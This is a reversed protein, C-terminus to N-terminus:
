LKVSRDCSCSCIYKGCPSFCVSLVWEIHGKLTTILQYDEINWLKITEDDSGSCIFNSCPSFCVSRVYDTHGEFTHILPFDMIKDEM